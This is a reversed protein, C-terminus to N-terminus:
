CRFISGPDGFDLDQEEIKDVKGLYKLEAKLYGMLIKTVQWPHLNVEEKPIKAMTEVPHRPARIDIECDSFERVLTFVSNIMSANDKSFVEAECRAQSNIERKHLFLHLDYLSYIILRHEQCDLTAFASLSKKSSPGRPSFRASIHAETNYFRIFLPKSLYAKVLEPITLSLDRYRELTVAPPILRKDHTSKQSREITGSIARRPDRDCVTLLMSVNDDGDTLAAFIDLHPVSQDVVTVQPIALHRQIQAQRQFIAQKYVRVADGHTLSGVEGKGQHPEPIDKTFIGRFRDAALVCTDEASIGHKELQSLLAALTISKGSGPGGSTFFLLRPDGHESQSLPELRHAATYKALAQRVYFKFQNDLTPKVIREDAIVQHIVEDRQVKEHHSLASTKPLQNIWAAFDAMATAENIALRSKVDAKAKQRLAQITSVNVPLSLANVSFHFINFVMSAFDADAAPTKFQLALDVAIQSLAYKEPHPIVLQNVSLGYLKLTQLESFSQVATMVTSQHQWCLNSHAQNIKAWSGLLASQAGTSFGRRLTPTRSLLNLIHKM